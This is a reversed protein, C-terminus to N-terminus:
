TTPTKPNMSNFKKVFINRVQDIHKDLEAFTWDKTEIQELIELHITGCKAYGTKFKNNEEPIHLYLPVIPLNAELAMHFIGQNFPAIGHFHQHRGEASAFISYNTRQLFETTNIFFQQRRKAHKKKPIYRTGVALASIALPIYKLTSESLIFRSNPLGLATLLFIDHESNHNFTYLVQHKPFKDLHPYHSKFGMIRLIFISSHRIINKSCFNRLKGFSLVVLLLSVSGTLAMISLAAVWRYITIAKKL